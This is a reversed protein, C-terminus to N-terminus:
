RQLRLKRTQLLTALWSRIRSKAAIAGAVWSYAGVIKLFYEIMWDSPDVRVRGTAFKNPWFFGPIGTFARIYSEERCVRV